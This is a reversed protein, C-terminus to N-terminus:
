AAAAEGGPLLRKRPIVGAVQASRKQDLRRTVHTYLKGTIYLNSHGLAYQVYKLEAGVELMLSAATHRLQHFTIRLVGAKRILVDLHRSVFEPHLPTGDVRAFVWGHDM